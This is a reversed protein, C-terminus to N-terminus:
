IYKHLQSRLKYLPFLKWKGAGTTRGLRELEPNAARLQIICMFGIACCLKSEPPEELTNFLCSELTAWATIAATAQPPFIPVQEVLGLFLRVELPLDPDVEVKCPEYLVGIIFLRQLETLNSFYSIDYVLHYLDWNQHINCKQFIYQVNDRCYM